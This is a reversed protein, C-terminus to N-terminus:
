SVGPTCKTCSSAPITTVNIHRLTMEVQFRTFVRPDNLPLDQPRASAGRVLEVDRDCDWLALAEGNNYGSAYHIGTVEPGAPKDEYIARAWEQTLPRAENGNGLSPLARIAMAAGKRALDYMALKRTPAVISVRWAPCIEAIGKEGFVECASTALDEGAYLIRRGDPDDVPPDAVHHHDFRALPGYRRFTTGDPTHGSRHYVRCWQWRVPDRNPEWWWVYDAEPLPRKPSQLQRVM